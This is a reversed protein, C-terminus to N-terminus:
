QFKRVTELLKNADFPKFIWGSAGAAKGENVKAEQSVTSLVLIPVFKSEKRQRLQKVLEIGDMEPMNLDTIVIDLNIGETKALADKGNIGEIVNYGIRRLTLACLQRVVAADDVVLATKPM